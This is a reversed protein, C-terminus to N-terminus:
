DYTRFYQRYFKKTLRIDLIDAEIEWPLQFDDDTGNYPAPGFFKGKWWWGTDDLKMKGTATQWVHVLEHALTRMTETSNTYDALRCVYYNMKDGNDLYYDKVECMDGSLPESAAESELKDVIIIEGHITSFEKIKSLEKLFYHAAIELLEVEEAKFGSASVVSLVHKAAM